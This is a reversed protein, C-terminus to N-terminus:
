RFGSVLAFLLMVLAGFSLAVSPISVYPGAWWGGLGLNVYGKLVRFVRDGELFIRKFILFKWM